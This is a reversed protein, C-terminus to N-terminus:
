ARKIWEEEPTWCERKKGAVDYNERIYRMHLDRRAIQEPTPPTYGASKSKKGNRRDDDEQRIKKMEREVYTMAAVKDSQIGDAIKKMFEDVMAKTDESIPQQQAEQEQRKKSEIREKNTERKFRTQEIWSRLTDPTLRWAQDNLRPPNRLATQVLELDHHKYEDIIWEALLVASVEDVQPVQYLRVLRM